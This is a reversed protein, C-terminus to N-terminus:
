ELPPANREVELDGNEMAAFLLRFLVDHAAQLDESWTTVLYRLILQLPPPKVPSLTSSPLADLLYLGVGQGSSQAEPPGLFVSAGSVTSEIWRKVRDDLPDAM